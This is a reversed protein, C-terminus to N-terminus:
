QNQRTNALWGSKVFALRVLAMSDCPHGRSAATFKPVQRLRCRCQVTKAAM